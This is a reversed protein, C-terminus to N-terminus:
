NAGGIACVASVTPVTGRAVQTTQVNGVNTTTGIREDAARLMQLADQQLLAAAQKCSDLNAFQAVYSSPAATGVFWTVLLLVKM